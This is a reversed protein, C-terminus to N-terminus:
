PGTVSAVDSAPVPAGNIVLDPQSNVVTVGSVVGSQYVSTSISGGASDTASVSLTYTQGNPLQDGSSDQGNWTFTQSGQPKAGADTTYVVQGLSNSVQLVVDKAPASVSYQWSATGNQLEASNTNVSATMGIMQVPNGAASQGNVLQQLLQNTMIQQQVGTMSVLQQTFANTDMPSLPDQNQLQTTLLTLFTSEDSTLSQQASSINSSTSNTSSSNTSSSVGTTSGGPFLSNSTNTSGVAGM